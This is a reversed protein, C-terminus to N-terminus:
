ILRIQYIACYHLMFLVLFGAVMNKVGWVHSLGIATHLM